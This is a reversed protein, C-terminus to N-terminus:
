SRGEELPSYIGSYVNVEGKKIALVCRGTYYNVANIHQTTYFIYYM